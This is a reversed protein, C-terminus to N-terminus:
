ARASSTLSVILQRRIATAAALRLLDDDTEAQPVLAAILTTLAAPGVAFFLEAVDADPVDSLDTELLKAGLAEPDLTKADRQLATLKPHQLRLLEFRLRKRLPTDEFAGTEEEDEWGERLAAPLTDFARREDTTLHLTNM